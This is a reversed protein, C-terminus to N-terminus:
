RDLPGLFLAPFAQSSSPLAPPATSSTGPTSFASAVLSPPSVYAYAHHQYWPPSAHASGPGCSPGPPVLPQLPLFQQPTPALPTPYGFPITTTTIYSPTPYTHAPNSSTPPAAFLTPPLPPPAATTFAAAVSTTASAGTFAEMPHHSMRPDMTSFVDYPSPMGTPRPPLTQVQPLGVDRGGMLQEFLDTGSYGVLPACAREGMPMLTMSPLTGDGLSELHAAAATAAAKVAQLSTDYANGMFQSDHFADMLDHSSPSKGAVRHVAPSLLAAAQDVDLLPWPELVPAAASPPPDMRGNAVAAHPALQARTNLGKSPTNPESGPIVDLLSHFSLAGLVKHRPAASPGNILSTSRKQGAISSSSASPMPAPSDVDMATASDFRQMLAPAPPLAVDASAMLPTGMMLHTRNDGAVADYAAAPKGLMSPQVSADLGSFDPSPAAWGPHLHQNQQQSMDAASMHPPLPPPATAPAGLSLSSLSSFSWMSAASVSSASGRRSSLRSAMTSAATRTDDETTVDKVSPMTFEFAQGASISRFRRTTPPSSFVSPSVAAPDLPEPAALPDPSPRTFSTPSVPEHLTPSASTHKPYLRFRRLTSRLRDTLDAVKSRRKKSKSSTSTTGGDGLGSVSPSDRNNTTTGCMSVAPSHHHHHGSRSHPSHSVSYPGSAVASLTPSFRHSSTSRTSRASNISRSRDRTTPMPTPAVQEIENRTLLLAWTM